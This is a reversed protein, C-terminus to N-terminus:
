VSVIWEKVTTQEESFVNFAFPNTFDITNSGSLQQDNGIYVAHPSVFTANLATLSQGSDLYL